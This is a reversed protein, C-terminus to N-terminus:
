GRRESVLYDGGPLFAVSWPHDLDQAITTLRFDAQESNVEQNDDAQACSCILILTLCLFHRIKLFKLFM